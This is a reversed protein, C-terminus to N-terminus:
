SLNNTKQYQLDRAQGIWDQRYIRSRFGKLRQAVRDIEYESLEAIQNYSYIGLENLTREIAPGVGKIRQLDDRADDAARPEGSEDSAPEADPVTRTQVSDDGAAVDEGADAMRPEGSAHMAPQADPLTRTKMSDDGAAVEEATAEPQEELIQQTRPLPEADASHDGDEVFEDAAILEENTRDKEAAPPEFVPQEGTENDIQDRLDSVTPVMTDAHPENSADLTEMSSADVPEIRTQNSRAAEELAAIKQRAEELEAELQKARQDREQFKEVLPPVRSQWSTLERSLRFIKDDKEKLGSISNRNQSEQNEVVTQLKDRQEEAAKLKSRFGAIQKQLEDRAKFSDRLSESLEKARNISEQHSNQYQSIQEMLSKNQEALREQEAQQSELQDQWGANIAIKEKGARDGRFFWGLALGVILALALLGIHVVTLEPITLEM